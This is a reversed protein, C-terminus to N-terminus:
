RGPTPHRKRCERGRDVSLGRGWRYGLRTGTVFVYYCVPGPGPFSHPGVGSPPPAPIVRFWGGQGWTLTPDPSHFGAGGRGTVFVVRVEKVVDRTGQEFIHYFPNFSEQLIMFLLLGKVISPFFNGKLGSKPYRFLGIAFNVIAPFPSSCDGSNYKLRIPIGMAFYAGNEM